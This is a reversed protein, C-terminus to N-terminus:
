YLSIELIHVNTYIAKLGTCVEINAVQDPQVCLFVFPSEYIEAVFGYKTLFFKFFFSVVGAPLISNKVNIVWTELRDSWGSM